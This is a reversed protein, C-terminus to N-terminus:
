SGGPVLVFEVGTKSHRNVAVEHSETGCTFSEVRLLEIGPARKAVEKAAARRDEKSAADWRKLDVVIEVLAAPTAPAVPGPPKKVPTPKSAPDKPAPTPPPQTPAVAPQKKLAAAKSGPVKEPGCGVL